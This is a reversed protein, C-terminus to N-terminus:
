QGRVLVESQPTRISLPNTAKHSPSRFNLSLKNTFDLSEMRAPFRQIDRRDFPTVRFQDLPNVRDPWEPTPFSRQFVRSQIIRLDVDFQQIVHIALDASLVKAPEGEVQDALVVHRPFIIKALIWARFHEGLCRSGSDALWSRALAFPIRQRPPLLNPRGFINQVSHRFQM